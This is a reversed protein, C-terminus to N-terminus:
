DIVNNSYDPYPKYLKRVIVRPKLVLLNLDGQRWMLGFGVCAVVVQLYPTPMDIDWEGEPSDITMSESVYNRGEKIMTVKFDGCMTTAVLENLRVALNVIESIGGSFKDLM